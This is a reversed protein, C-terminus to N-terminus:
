RPRPRMNWVTFRSIDRHSDRDFSLLGSKELVEMAIIRKSKRYDALLHKGNRVACVAGLIVDNLQLLDSDHSHKSVLQKLPNHGLGHDRAAAANLMNRLDNLSTSSHRHDMCVYLSGLPGYLRVFKHLILQYYLKSLGVDADGDNYRKHGWQHSDFIICHFQLSNSSNLAFFYDVLWRYEVEKQNSVKSWKLESKMNLAIIYQSVTKYISSIMQKHM